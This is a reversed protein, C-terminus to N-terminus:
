MPNGFLLNMFPYNWFNDGEQISKEIPIEQQLIQAFCFFM